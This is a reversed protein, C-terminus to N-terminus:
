RDNNSWEKIITLRPKRTAYYHSVLWYLSWGVGIGAWLARTKIHPRTMHLGADTIHWGFALVKDLSMLNAAGQKIPRLGHEYM